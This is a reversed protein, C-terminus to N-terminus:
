QFVSGVELEYAQGASVARDFEELVLPLVENIERDGALSHKLRIATRVAKVIRLREMDIDSKQQM